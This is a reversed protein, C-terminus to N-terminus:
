TWSQFGRAAGLAFLSLGALLAVVAGGIPVDTAMSIPAYVTQGSADKSALLLERNGRGARALSIHFHNTFTYVILQGYEPMAARGEALLVRRILERDTMGIVVADLAEGKTHQSDPAGGIEANRAPSRYASTIIIPLGAIDRVAQVLQALAFRQAALEAPWPEHVDFERSDFNATLRM